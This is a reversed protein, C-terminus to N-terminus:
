KFELIFIGITTSSKDEYSQCQLNMNNATLTQLISIGSMAQQSTLSTKLSYFMICKDPNVTKITINENAISKLDKEIYQLSKLGEFEIVEIRYQCPQKGYGERSISVSTNSNFKVLIQSSLFDKSMTSIKIISKNLDIANISINKDSSGNEFEGTIIQKSKITVESSGSVNVRGYAM